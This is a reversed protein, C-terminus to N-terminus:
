AATPEPTHGDQVSENRVKAGTPLVQVSQAIVEVSQKQVNNKDLYGRISLRGSVLVLSGKKVIESVQGALKGFAIITLWMPPTEREKNFDTTVALRFRAVMMSDETTHLEADIGANGIFSCQNFSVM